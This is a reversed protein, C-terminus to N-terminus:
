NMWSGGNVNLSQGTVHSAEDRAFWVIAKAVDDATTLRGLPIAAGLKNRATEIDVYEKDALDNTVGVYM